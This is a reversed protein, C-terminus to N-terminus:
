EGAHLTARAAGGAGSGVGHVVRGALQPLHHPQPHLFHHEIALGKPQARRAADSRNRDYLALPCPLSTTKASASRLAAQNM